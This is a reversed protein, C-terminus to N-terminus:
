FICYFPILHPNLTLIWVFDGFFTKGTNLKNTFLNFLPLVIKLQYFVYFLWFNAFFDEKEYSCEKNEARVCFLWKYVESM